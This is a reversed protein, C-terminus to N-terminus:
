NCGAILKYSNTSCLFLLCSIMNMNFSPKYFRMLIRAISIPKVFGGRRNGVRLQISQLCSRVRPPRCIAPRVSMCVKMVFMSIIADAITM